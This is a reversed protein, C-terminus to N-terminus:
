GARKPTGPRRKTLITTIKNKLDSLSVPKILYGDVEQQIAAM